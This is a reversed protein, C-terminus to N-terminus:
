GGVHQAINVLALGVLMVAPGREIELTAELPIRVRLEVGAKAGGSQIVLMELFAATRDLEIAVDGSVFGIGFPDGFGLLAEQFQAVLLILRAYKTQGPM